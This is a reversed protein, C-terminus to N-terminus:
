QKIQKTRSTHKMLYKTIGYWTYITPIPLNGKDKNAYM